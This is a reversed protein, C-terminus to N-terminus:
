RKNFVERIKWRWITTETEISKHKFRDRSVYLQSM